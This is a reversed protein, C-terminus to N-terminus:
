REVENGEKEIENINPPVGQGGSCGCMFVCVMICVSDGRM